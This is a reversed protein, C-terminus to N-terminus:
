PSALPPPVSSCGAGSFLSLDASRLEVIAERLDAIPSYQFLALRANTASQAHCAYYELSMFYALRAGSLGNEDLDAFASTGLMALGVLLAVSSAVWRVYRGARVGEVPILPRARGDAAIGVCLIYLGVIVPCTTIVYRSSAASALGFTLRDLAISAAGIYGFAIIGFVARYDGKSESSRRWHLAVVIITIAIEAVGFATAVSLAPQNNVMGLVGNGLAAVFYELVAVPHHVDYQLPAAHTGPLYLVFFALASAILLGGEAHRGRPWPFISAVICAPWSLLGPEGLFSALVCLAVCALLRQMSRRDTSFASGAALLALMSVTVAAINQVNWEELFSEWNSWACVTASIPLMLLMRSWVAGGVTRRLIWYFIGVEVLLLPLSLMKIVTVDFHFRSATLMLLLRWLVPRVSGDPAWLSVASLQGHRTFNVINPVFGWTDLIPM